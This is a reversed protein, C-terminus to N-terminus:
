GADVDDEELADVGVDPADAPRQIAEPSGIDSFQVQYTESGGDTVARSVQFRRVVDSDDVWVDLMADDVFGVDGTSLDISDTFTTGALFGGLPSDSELTSLEESLRYRTVDTGDIAGSGVRELAARSAMDGLEIVPRPVPTGTWVEDFGLSPLAVWGQYETYDEVFHVYVRGDVLRYQDIWTQPDGDIRYLMSYDSNEPVSIMVDGDSQRVTEAPVPIKTGDAEIYTASAEWSMGVRTETPAQAGLGEGSGSSAEVDTESSSFLNIDDDRPADVPPEAPASQGFSLFDLTVTITQIDPSVVEVRRVLGQDDVSITMTDDPNLALEGDVSGLGLQDEGVLRLLVSPDSLEPLPLRYRSVRDSDITADDIQEASDVSLLAELDVESPNPGFTDAVAQRDVGGYEIWGNRTPYDDRFHLFLREGMARVEDVWEIPAYDEPADVDLDPNTLRMTATEGAVTTETVYPDFREGDQAFSQTVRWTVSDAAAAATASTAARVQALAPIPAVGITTVAAIALAVIAVVAVAGITWRRRDRVRRPSTPTPARDHEHEHEIVSMLEGLMTTALPSEADPLAAHRLPDTARLARIPEDHDRPTRM